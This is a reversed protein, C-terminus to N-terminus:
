DAGNLPAPRGGIRVHSEGNAAKKGATGDPLSRRLDSLAARLRQHARYLCNRVTEDTTELLSAIAALRLGQDHRLEFVLREREPLQALAEGVRRRVEGSELAREPDSAPRRDVLLRAAEVTFGDGRESELPVLRGDRRAAQRRRAHDRCVNVVIRYLWTRFSSEGRFQGITRHVRLFTEQYVDRAEEENRLVRLALRLVDADYRRVLDEFAASDGRQAEGILRTEEAPIV